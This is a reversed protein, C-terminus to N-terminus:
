HKVPLAHNQIALRVILHFMGAVMPMELANHIHIHQLANYKYKMNVNLKALEAVM